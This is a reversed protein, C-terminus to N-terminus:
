RRTAAEVAQEQLWTLYAYIALEEARPDSRDLRHSFTDEQVDLRTGMVLRLDNLASLWADLEEDSLREHGLTGSFTGLARRRGDVIEDRMLRRYEAEDEDADSYAPPFLRRLDDGGPERDLRAELEAALSALLTRDADPLRLVVEGRHRRIRPRVIM